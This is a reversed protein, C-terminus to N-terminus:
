GLAVYCVLHVRYVYVTDSFTGGYFAFLTPPIWFERRSFLVDTEEILFVLCGLKFYKVDVGFIM